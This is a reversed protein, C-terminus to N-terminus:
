KEDDQPSAQDLKEQQNRAFDELSKKTAGPLQNLPIKKPIKGVTDKGISAPPNFKNKLQKRYIFGIILISILLVLFSIAKM